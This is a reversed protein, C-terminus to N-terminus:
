PHTNFTSPATHTHQVTPARHAMSIYIYHLAINIRVARTRMRRRSRAHTRHATCYLGCGLSVVFVGCRVFYGCRLVFISHHHRSTRVNAHSSTVQGFAFNNIQPATHSTDARACHTQTQSSADPTRAHLTYMHVWVFIAYARSLLVLLFVDSGCFRCDPWRSRNASLARVCISTELRATVRATDDFLHREHTYENAACRSQASCM